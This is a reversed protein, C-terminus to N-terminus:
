YVGKYLKTVKEDYKKPGENCRHSLLLPNQYEKLQHSTVMSILYDYYSEYVYSAFYNAQRELMERYKFNSYNYLDFNIYSFVLHGVEHAFVKYYMDALSIENLDKQNLFHEIHDPCIYLTKKDKIFFCGMLEIKRFINIKQEINEEDLERFQIDNEQNNFKSNAIEFMESSDTLKIEDLSLFMVLHLLARFQQENNYGTEEIVIKNFDYSLKAYCRNYAKKIYKDDITEIVKINKENKLTITINYIKYKDNVFVNVDYYFHALKFIFEGINSSISSGQEYDIIIKDVNKENEPIIIIKYDVNEKNGIFKDFIKQNMKMLYAM